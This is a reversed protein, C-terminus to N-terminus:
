DWGTYDCGAELVFYRGDDWRGVALWDTEDPEGEVAHVVQTVHSMEEEGDGCTHHVAEHLASRWNCDQKFSELDVM